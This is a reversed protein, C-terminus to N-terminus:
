SEVDDISREYLPVYGNHVRYFAVPQEGEQVPKKIQKCRSKSLWRNAYKLTYEDKTIDKGGVMPLGTERVSQATYCKYYNNYDLKDFISM